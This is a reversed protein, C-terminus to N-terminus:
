RVEVAEETRCKKGLPKMELRLCCIAIAILTGPIPLSWGGALGSCAVIAFALWAALLPPSPTYPTYFLLRRSLEKQRLLLLLLLWLLSYPNSPFFSTTRAVVAVELKWVAVDREEECNGRGRSSDLHHCRTQSTLVVAQNM